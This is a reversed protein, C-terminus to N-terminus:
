SMGTLGPPGASVTSSATLAASRPPRYSGTSGITGMKAEAVQVAEAFSMGKEPDEADFVRGGQFCIRNGPIELKKAIHPIMADRAREAAEIAANGMMLTVRSSYSGLDIPTLDAVEGSRIFLSFRHKWVEGGRKGPAFGDYAVMLWRSVPKSGVEGLDLMM